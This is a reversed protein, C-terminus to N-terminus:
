PQQGLGAAGRSRLERVAAALTGREALKTAGRHGEAHVRRPPRDVFPLEDAVGCLEFVRQVCRPGKVVVMRSGMRRQAMLLVRLGGSDIFSLERMDVVVIRADTREAQELEHGLADISARDLQGALEVLHMHGDRFRRLGLVGPDLSSPSSSTADQPM